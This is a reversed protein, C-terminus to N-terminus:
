RSRRRDRALPDGVPSLHDIEGFTMLLAQIGPLAEVRRRLAADEDLSDSMTVLLLMDDNQATVVECGEEEGLRRALHESEGPEPVVVYGCVPM